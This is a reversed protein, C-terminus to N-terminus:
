ASSASTSTKRSSAMTRRGSRRRDRVAADMVADCSKATDMTAIQEDLYALMGNRRAWPAEDSIAARITELAADLERAAGRYPPYPLGTVYRIFDGAWTAGQHTLLFPDYSHFTWIVNDDPIAKPDIRALADANSYCAGTLM